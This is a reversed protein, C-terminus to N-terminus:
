LAYAFYISIDDGSKANSVSFLLINHLSNVLTHQTILSQM